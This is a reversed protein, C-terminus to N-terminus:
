TVNFDNMVAEAHGMLYTFDVLMTLYLKYNSIPVSVIKFNSINLLSLVSHFLHYQLTPMAYISVTM